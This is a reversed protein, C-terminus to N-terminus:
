SQPKSILPLTATFPGPDVRQSKLYWCMTFLGRPRRQHSGRTMRSSANSGRFRRRQCRDTSKCMWIGRVQLPASMSILRWVRTASSLHVDYQQRPRSRVRWLRLLASITCYLYEYLYSCGYLAPVQGPRVSASIDSEVWDIRPLTSCRYHPMVQRSIAFDLRNAGPQTRLV